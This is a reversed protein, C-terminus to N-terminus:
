SISKSVKFTTNGLNMMSLVAQKIVTEHNKTAAIIRDNARKREESFIKDLKEKEYEDNITNGM